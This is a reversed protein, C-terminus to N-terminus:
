RSIRAIRADRRGDGWFKAVLIVLGLGGALGIGIGSLRAGVFICGLVVAFEIWFM